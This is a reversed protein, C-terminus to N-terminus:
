GALDLDPSSKRSGPFNATHLITGPQEGHKSKEREPLHKRLIGNGRKSSARLEMRGGGRIRRVLEFKKKKEKAKIFGHDLQHKLKGNEGRSSV